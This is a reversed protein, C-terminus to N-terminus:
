EIDSNVVANRKSFEQVDNMLKQFNSGKSKFGFTPSLRYTLTRGVKMGKIIIGREALETIARTVNPREMGILKALDTQSLQIFNEFDLVACLADLVRRAEGSVPNQALELMAAQSMQVFGEKRFPHPGRTPKLAVMQVVEGTELDTQEVRIQKAM